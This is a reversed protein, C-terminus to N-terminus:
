NRQDHPVTVETSCSGVNGINDSASTVITYVRGSRDNGNRAATLSVGFSYAGGPHDLAFSGTPQVKGYEDKVAYTTGGPRIAQTGPTVSGSVTVAVSNGNPPWLTNPAATCSVSPPTQAVGNVSTITVGGTGSGPDIPYISATQEVGGATGNFTSNWTWSYLPTCYYTPSPQNAGCSLSGPSPQTSVGVLTTKFALFNGIPNASPPEGSLNEHAPQDTFSLTTGDLSVTYPYVTPCGNPGTAQIQCGGVAGNDLFSEPFIFPYRDSLSNSIDYGGGTYGGPPPDYYPPPAILSGDTPSINQPNLLSPNKPRISTGGPDITIQQQWNFSTFGCSTAYDPLTMSNPTVFRAQMTEPLPVSLTVNVACPSM